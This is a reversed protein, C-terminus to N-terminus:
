AYGGRLREVAAVARLGAAVASDAQGLHGFAHAALAQSEWEADAGAASLVPGAERLIALVRRPLGEGEAARAEALGVAAHASPADLFVAVSRARALHDKAETDRGAQRLLEALLLLDALESFRAGVRRHIEVAAEASRLALDTNGLAAHIEAESRLDSGTEDELRLEQNIGRAEGYFELARRFDGAQRHLEALQELNSSEEQRLGQERSMQLASDLTAIARGPEGIAAWATGLQGIANQEGLADEAEHLPGRAARLYRIAAAPDGTRVALMGLNTLVRGEILPDDLTRAGRFAGLFLARARHFDGLETYTLGLNTRAKTLGVTDGRAESM